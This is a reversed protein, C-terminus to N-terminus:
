YGFQDDCAERRRSDENIPAIYKINARVYCVGPEGLTFPDTGSVRLWPVDRDFVIADGQNNDLFVATIIAGPMLRSKVKGNPESRCNLYTPDPDIVLWKINKYKGANGQLIATTFDGKANPTPVEAVQASTFTFLFESILPSFFFIFALTIFFALFRKM